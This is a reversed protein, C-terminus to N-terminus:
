IEDLADAVMEPTIPTADDPVDVVPFGSIRSVSGRSTATRRPRLARRILASAVAGLSEGRERALSKVARHVDADLNLTTRM